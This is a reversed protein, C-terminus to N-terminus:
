LWLDGAAVRLVPHELAGGPVRISFTLAETNALPM